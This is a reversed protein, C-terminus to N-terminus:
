RADAVAPKDVYLVALGEDLDIIEDDSGDDVRGYRGNPATQYPNPDDRRQERRQREKSRAAQLIKRSSDSFLTAKRPRAEEQKAQEQRAGELRQERRTSFRAQDRM